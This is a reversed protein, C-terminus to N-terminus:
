NEKVAVSVTFIGWDDVRMSVKRFGAERVLEDMEAQTRRRMIWPEQDRNNLTEAIMELQPHWPQGTYVLFGGPKVLKSVGRLSRRVMTNDGFLEYLGSVVGIDIGSGATALAEESFADAREYRVADCSVQKAYERGEALGGESWDRVLVDFKRDPHSKCFDVLYRGPGGAIDVIRVAHDPTVNTRQVAETLAAEINQKRVRIGRWGIADLYSRDMFKGIATKGSPENRYVYHLSQGSDFGNKLGVSIGDSLSGVTRMMFRQIVYGIRKLSIMPLRAKLWAYEEHTHGRWDAERLESYDTEESFARELFDNVEDLVLQRDTEHFVAHFFGKYVVTRKLKSSLNQFFLRQPKNKVVWDARASILLTPVQIAGADAIVRKAGDFLGLLVNVAIQKSILPDADYRRAEDSDHTLAKGRVYSQIFLTKKGQKAAIANAIRLGPIAFPVYLKVKFAPTALVMARIRPAYDHVWLSILVAAVSHAIVALQNEDLKYEDRIHHIFSDVDRVLDYFNEAYGREGSSKGCGRQDWAFVACRSLTLGSAIHEVRGSHEHGRHFIVVGRDYGGEPLWARYFIEAGDPLRFIREVATPFGAKV